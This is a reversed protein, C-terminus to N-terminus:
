PNGTKQKKFELFEMYQRMKASEQQQGSNSMYGIAKRAAEIAADFKGQVELAQILNLTNNYDSPKLDVAKQFYEVAEEFKGNEASIDGLHMYANISQPNKTLINRYRDAALRSQEAAKEPQNAKRLVDAFNYHIVAKMEDNFYGKDFSNVAHQYIELAENVRNSDAFIRAAVIYARASMSPYALVLEDLKALTAPLQGNWALKEMQDALKRGKMERMSNLQQEADQLVVSALLNEVPAYDDVLIIGKSKEKLKAMDANNLYWIQKNVDYGACVNELDLNRKAAVVIFTNRKSTGVDTESIVSVFPFTQELTNVFAGLFLGSDFIDILEVMYIGDLTLINAIKENFQRTTLQYPISYDNLADEYIFDYSKVKEGHNKREILENVYNRADLTITNITTTPELGFAKTAAKTVAPDIEVVDVTSGPWFKELYRPLIYGGGGLILFSPKDKGESFRHTVAAMIQEYSYQLHSIDGAIMESHILKDQIFLRREPVGGMKRVAIYCYQTEDEYIVMPDVPKRLWLKAGVKQAWQWPSVGMTLFSLFLLACIRSPWLKVGYLLAMLMMVGGVVWIIATTGMTAILYYGAAFTGAISGAAGWAYIDGVTRGTPLGRQLAMKAVVPSITGLLTSPLLFVISVHLFIRTPWNFQWLWTWKGVFNNLTVTVVCTVACIAFLFSLAKRPQFRDAIRGGLWNGITIGVLVVGIISTWTYLSSGLFPAIARGAVLELVMICFSSIFVTVSPILIPLFKRTKSM